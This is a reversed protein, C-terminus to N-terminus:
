GLKGSRALAIAEIYAPAFHLRYAIMLQVRAKECAAIMARGDKESTAM